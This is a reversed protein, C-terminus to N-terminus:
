PLPGSLGLAGVSRTRSVLYGNVLWTSRTGPVAALAQATQLGSTTCPTLWRAPGSCARARGSGTPGYAAIARGPSDKPAGGPPPRPRGNWHRIPGSFSGVISVLWVKCPAVTDVITWNSARHRWDTQGGALVPRDLPLGPGSPH